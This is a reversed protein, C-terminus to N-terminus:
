KMGRDFELRFIIPQRKYSRVIEGNQSAPIWLGSKRIIRLAEEDLSFEVSKCILPGEVRGDKEVRFQVVATGMIKLDIARQPYRLNQNLFSIWGSRGGPFISEERTSNSNKMEAKRAADEKLLDRIGMLHGQEYNKGLVARGTDNYYYWEGNALGDKYNTISDLHGSPRYFVFRGHPITGERDKFTETKILPGKFNYTDWQWATDSIKKQRLLFAAKREKSPNRNKDLLSISEGSQTFASTGLTLLVALCTLKFM